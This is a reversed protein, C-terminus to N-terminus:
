LSEQFRYVASASGRRIGMGKELIQCICFIYYTSSRNRRFGCHHDGIIDEAYPTLRSLLINILVEYTTSVLIIGRYNSCDNKDGKKYVPVIISEKWQKRQVSFQSCEEDFWPKHQKWGNLGLTGKALIKINEKINDWARNVDESNNLKEL